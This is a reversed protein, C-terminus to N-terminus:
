PKKGKNTYFPRKNNYIETNHPRECYRDISTGNEYNRYLFNVYM